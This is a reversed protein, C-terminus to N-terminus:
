IKKSSAVPSSYLKLLRREKAAEEIKSEWQKEKIGSHNCEHYITDAEHMLQLLRRNHATQMIPIQEELSISKRGAYLHKAALTTQGKEAHETAQKILGQPTFDIILFAHRRSFPKIIKEFWSLEQSDNRIAKKVQSVFERSFQRERSLLGIPQAVQVM